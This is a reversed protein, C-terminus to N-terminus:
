QAKKIEIGAALASLRAVISYTAEKAQDDRNEKLESICFKKFVMGKSNLNSDDGKQENVRMFGGISNGAVLYIAIEAALNEYKLITRVGEQVIVSTFKIKNKGANMKHRTKKNISLVEEGSRATMIGMGYTGQSAKIFFNRNEDEPLTSKLEELAEAIKEFGEKATFDVGEVERFGAMLLNPDVSFENSFKEVVTQYEKFHDTKQRTNWGILPSPMVPTKIEKWNIEIESSQDNNLILFSVAKDATFFENDQIRLKEINISFKSFSILEVQDGDAFLSEDLSAFLVNFGADSLAKKLFALHDLYFLNKTNSEPYIVIENIDSNYGNLSKQFQDSAKQLDLQCVNNFGAPYINNDIPAIKDRSERIDVSNTLPAPVDKMQADIYENIRNYNSCCFQILEEKTKVQYTATM